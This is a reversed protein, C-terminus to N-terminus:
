CCYDIIFLYGSDNAVNDSDGVVNLTTKAYIWSDLDDVTKFDYASEKSYWSNGYRSRFEKEIVVDFADLTVKKIKITTFLQGIRQKIITSKGLEQNIEVAFYDCM